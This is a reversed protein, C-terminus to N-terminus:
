DAVLAWRLKRSETAETLGRKLKLNSQDEGKGETSDGLLNILAPTM